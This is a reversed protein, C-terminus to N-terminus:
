PVPGPFRQPEQGREAATHKIPTDGEGPQSEAARQEPKGQQDARNRRTQAHKSQGFSGPRCQQEMAAAHLLSLGTEKSARARYTRAIM